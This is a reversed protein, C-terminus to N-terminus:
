LPMLEDIFDPELGFFEGCINFPMEGDELREYLSERAEEVMDEAHERSLGDRKMLIEAIGM